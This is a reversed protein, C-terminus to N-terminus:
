CDELSSAGAIDGQLLRDATELRVLRNGLGQHNRERHYNELFQATAKRVFAKGFLMLRNLCSEKFRVFQEAHANLSPSRPPTRVSAIGSEALLDLFEATFLPDRDHILYRKGKLLGDVSDTLNREIQGM